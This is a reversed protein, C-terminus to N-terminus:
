SDRSGTRRYSPRMFCSKIRSVVSVSVGLVLGSRHRKLQSPLVTSLFNSLVEPIQGEMVENMAAFAVDTSPFPEFAILRVMQSCLNLETFSQSVSPDIVVIKNVGKCDFLSFGAVNEFLAADPDIAM